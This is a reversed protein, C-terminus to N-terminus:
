STGENRLAKYAKERDGFVVEPPLSFARPAFRYWVRIIGTACAIALAIVVATRLGGFVAGDPFSPMFFESVFVLPLWLTASIIERNSERVPPREKLSLERPLDSGLLRFVRGEAPLKKDTLMKVVFYDGRNLLPFDFTIQTRYTQYTGDDDEVPDIDSAVDIEAPHRETVFFDLLRVDRPVIMTLPRILGSVAVHGDNAVIFILQYLDDVERGEFSIKVRERVDGGIGGIVRSEFIRYISLSKRTTRRYFYISALISAITLVVGVVGMAFGYQTAM